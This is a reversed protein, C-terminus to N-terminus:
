ATAKEGHTASPKLFVGALWQASERRMMVSIHLALSESSCLSHTGYHRTRSSHLCQLFIVRLGVSGSYSHPFNMWTSTTYFELYWTRLLTLDFHFNKSIYCLCKLNVMNIKKKQHSNCVTCNRLIRYKHACIQILFVFTYKHLRTNSFFFGWTKKKYDCNRFIIM